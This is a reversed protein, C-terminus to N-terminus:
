KSEGVRCGMLDRLYFSLTDGVSLGNKSALKEHIVCVRRDEAHDKSDPWRGELLYPTLISTNTSTSGGQLAAALTSVDQSGIAYLCRQNSDVMRVAQFVDAFAPDNFDVSKGPAAPIYWLAGDLNVADGYGIPSLVTLPKFTFSASQGSDAASGSRLHNYISWNSYEGRLLYRGGIELEEAAFTLDVYQTQLTGPLHSNISSQYSSALAVLDGAQIAEPYGAVVEDAKFFFQYIVQQEGGTSGPLPISSSRVDVLTGYFFM